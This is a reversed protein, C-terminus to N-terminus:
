RGAPGRKAARGNARDGPEPPLSVVQGSIDHGHDHAHVYLALERAARPGFLAVYEPHRTVSEPAGSCCVHRNLCVVRDTGAMVIHLDHSVMLVGCGRRRRVEGVLEFLALQGAFDVSQFPEDLVLLDAGRLLARALLVRQLEGGSLAPLSRDLIDGLRVERLAARLVDAPRPAPLCLFSRVTLPLTPDVSVRQPVYGISLGPRRLVAGRDPKLLGLLVRVLTSKGAGNPGIVTVIEGPHVAIDIRELVMRGAFAIDLGRAQILPEHGEPAREIAM